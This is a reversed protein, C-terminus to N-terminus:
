VPLRGMRRRYRNVDHEIGTRYRDLYAGILAARDAPTPDGALAGEEALDDLFRTLADELAIPVGAGRAKVAYRQSGLSEIEPKGAWLQYPNGYASFTVPRAGFLQRLAKQLATKGGPGRLVMEAAYGHQGFDGAVDHVELSEVVFGSVSEGPFPFGMMAAWKKAFPV